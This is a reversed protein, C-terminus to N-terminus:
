TMPTAALLNVPLPPPKGVAAYNPTRTAVDSFTGLLKKRALIVFALDVVMGLVSGVVEPLWHLGGMGWTLGFMALMQLFSLAISPLVQCFVLTKIVAVNTKGSTLGMWMGFWVIAVLGILFEVPHLILSIYQQSLDITGAAAGATAANAAVSAKIAEIQMLGTVVQIAIVVLAPLLFASRLAWWQGWVIQRPSVSAVLLLELLGAQGARVFFGAARSAVWLKFVLMLLASVMASVGMLAQPNPNQVAIVALLGISVTLVAVPVLTRRDRAALWRMPNEELLRLRWKRRREPSGPKRLWSRSQRAERSGEQWMRPALLSALVLFVWALGHQLALSTWFGGLLTERVEAFTFGPSAISLRAVFKLHDWGAAWWDIAPMLVILIGSLLVTGNMARHGDRSLCSVFVGIALSFFMTNFLTLMLRWFEGGTVGGVLFSLGLIPFAALLGFAARLSTALLKGFVVDYGHLDTLFLLGLTGERKEESLCDSTLFVGATCAFAFSLWGFVYFLIEGLQNAFPRGPLESLLFIGSFLLLATLGALLRIWYTWPKRAAVRLEREAIPLFTM